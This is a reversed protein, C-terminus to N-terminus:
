GRLVFDAAVTVLVGLVFTVIYSVARLISQRKRDEQSELDSIRRQLSIRYSTNLDRSGLVADARKLALLPFTDTEVSDADKIFRQFAAVIALTNTDLHTVTFGLTQALRGM